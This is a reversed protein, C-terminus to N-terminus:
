GPEIWTCVNLHLQSVHNTANYIITNSRFHHLQILNIKMFITSWNRIRVEPTAMSKPRIYSNFLVRNLRIIRWFVKDMCFRHSLHVHWGKESKFGNELLRRNGIWVVIGFAHSHYTLTTYNSYTLGVFDIQLMTGLIVTPIIEKRQLFLHWNFVTYYIM